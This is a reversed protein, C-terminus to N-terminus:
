RFDCRNTTVCLVEVQMACRILCYQMYTFGYYAVGVTMCKTAFCSVKLQLVCLTFCNQIYTYGHHVIGETMGSKQLVCSTNCQVYFSVIKYTHTAM